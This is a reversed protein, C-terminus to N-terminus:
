MIRVCFLIFIVLLIFLISCFDSYSVIGSSNETCLVKDNSPLDVYCVSPYFRPWGGEWTLVWLDHIVPLYKNFDRSHFRRTTPPSRLLQCEHRVYLIGCLPLTDKYTGANIISAIVIGCDHFGNAAVPLKLAGLPWQM